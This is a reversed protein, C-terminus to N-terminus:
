AARAQAGPKGLGIQKALNSRAESYSQAVMPYDVPLGFREVYSKPTLGNATLHRRLTKYTRGDIFSVIGTPTISKRIEAATPKSVQEQPAAAATTAGDAMSMIQRHMSQILNPLESVPISNNSVYAAVLDTVLRLPMSQELETTM